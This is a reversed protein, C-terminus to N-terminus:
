SLRETEGTEWDTVEVGAGLIELVRIATEVKIADQRLMKSIRQRSVDMEKALRSQTYGREKM